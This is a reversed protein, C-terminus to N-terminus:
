GTSMSPVSRLVHKRWCFTSTWVRTALRYFKLEYLWDDGEPLKEVPQAAMPTIFTVAKNSNKKSALVGVDTLAPHFSSMRPPHFNCVKLSTVFRM